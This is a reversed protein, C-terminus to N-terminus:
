CVPKFLIEGDKPHCITMRVKFGKYLANFLIHLGPTSCNNPIFAELFRIAAMCFDHYDLLLAQELFRGENQGNSNSLLDMLEDVERKLMNLTCRTSGTAAGLVDEQPGLVGNSFLKNFYIEAFIIRFEISFRMDNRNEDTSGWTFVPPSAADLDL